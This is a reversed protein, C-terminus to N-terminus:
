NFSRAFITDIDREQKRKERASPDREPKRFALRRTPLVPLQWIIWFCDNLTIFLRSCRAVAIRFTSSRFILFSAGDDTVNSVKIQDDSVRRPSRLWAAILSSSVFLSLSLPLSPSFPWLFNPPSPSPAYRTKNNVRIMITVASIPWRGDSEKIRELEKRGKIIRLTEILATASIM